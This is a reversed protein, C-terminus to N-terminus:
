SQHTEEYQYEIIDEIIYIKDFGKKKAEINLQDLLANLLNIDVRQMTGKAISLVSSPRTKTEVALYNSTIELEDLARQLNFKITMEIGEGM